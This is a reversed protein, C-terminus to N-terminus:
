TNHWRSTAYNSEVTAYYRAENVSYYARTRNKQGILQSLTRIFQIQLCVNQGVKMLLFPDEEGELIDAYQSPLFGLARAAEDGLTVDTVELELPAEFMTVSLPIADILEERSIDHDHGFISIIDTREDIDALTVPGDDLIDEPDLTTTPLLVAFSALIVFDEIDHEHPAPQTVLGDVGPRVSFELKPNYESTRCEKLMLMM